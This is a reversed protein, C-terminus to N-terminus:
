QYHYDQPGEQPRNKYLLLSDKKIFAEGSYFDFEIYDIKQCFLEDAVLGTCIRLDLGQPVFAIKKGRRMKELNQYITDMMNPLEAKYQEMKKEHAIRNQEIRARDQKLIEEVSSFRPMETTMISVEENTKPM